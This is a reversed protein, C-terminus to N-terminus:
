RILADVRGCCRRDRVLLGGVGCPRRGVGGCPRRGVVRRESRRIELGREGFLRIVGKRRRGVLLRERERRRGVVGRDSSM